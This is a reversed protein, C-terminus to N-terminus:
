KSSGLDISHSAPRTTPKSTKRQNFTLDSHSSNVSNSSSPSQNLEASFYYLIILFQNPLLIKSTQSGLSPISKRSFSLNKKPPVLSSRQSTNILPISPKRSTTSINILPVSLKRESASNQIIERSSKQAVSAPTPLNPKRKNEIPHIKLKNISTTSSALSKNSYAFSKSNLLNNKTITINENV